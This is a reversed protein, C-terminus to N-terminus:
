KEFFLNLITQRFNEQAKLKADEIDAFEIVKNSNSQFLYFKDSIGNDLYKYNRIHYTIGLEKVESLIEFLGREKGINTINDKWNLKKIEM